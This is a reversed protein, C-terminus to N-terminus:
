YSYVGDLPIRLWVPMGVATPRELAIQGFCGVSLATLALVRRFMAGETYEAGRRFWIGEAGDHYATSCMFSRVAAMFLAATASPPTNIKTEASVAKWIGNRTYMLMSPYSSM